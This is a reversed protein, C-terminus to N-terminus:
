AVTTLATWTTSGNTNIYARDTTGSGDSRLYLSGKAASLSPAGSGFFMGFNATSSFNFGAGATGGAPIATASLATIAGTATSVGTAAFGTSSFTGITASNILVQANNAATTGWRAVGTSTFIDPTTSSLFIQGGFQSKATGDLLLHYKNAGATMLSRMGCMLTPSATFDDVLLGYANTIQAAGINNVRFGSLTTITGSGVLTSPKALFTTGSSINGTGSNLHVAGNFATATTISGSGEVAPSASHAACAGLTGSGTYHVHCIVGSAEVMDNAGSVTPEVQFFRATGTGDAHGTASFSQQIGYVTSQVAGMARSAIYNAGITWATSSISFAGSGITLNNVSPNELFDHLTTATQGTIKVGVLADGLSTSATSALSALAASNDDAITIDSITYTTIGTGSYTESYHGNPAYYEYYGKSDTTLTGNSIATGTADDTRYILATSGGPYTQVTVTAGSVVDGSVDTINSYRKQM